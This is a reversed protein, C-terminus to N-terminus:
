HPTCKWVRALPKNLERFETLQHGFKKVDCLPNFLKVTHVRIFVNMKRFESLTFGITKQDRLICFKSHELSLGFQALNSELSQDYCASSDKSCQTSYHM